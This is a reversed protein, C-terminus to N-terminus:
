IAVCTVTRYVGAISNIKDIVLDGIEPLTEVEIVMIIDYPGTVRDISKVKRGLKKLAAVVDATKAVEIETQILVFAKVAM